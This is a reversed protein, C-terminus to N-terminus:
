PSNCFCCNRGSVKTVNSATILYYTSFGLDALKYADVAILDYPSYLMKRNIDTACVAYIYQGDDFKLRQNAAELDDIHKEMTARTLTGSAPLM